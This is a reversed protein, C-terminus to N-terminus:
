SFAEKVDIFLYVVLTMLFMVLGFALILLPISLSEVLLPSILAALPNTLSFITLITGIVSGIIHEPIKIQLSSFYVISLITNFFAYGGWLLIGISYAITERFLVLSGGMFILM